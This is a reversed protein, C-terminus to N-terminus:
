TIILKVGAGVALAPGSILTQALLAVAISLPETVIAVPPTHVPPVPVNLGPGLESLVSYVGDSPSIAAPLTVKVNVV